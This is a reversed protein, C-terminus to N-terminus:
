DKKLRAHREVLLNRARVVGPVFNGNGNDGAAVVFRHLLFNQLGDIGHVVGIALVDFALVCVDLAADVDVHLRGSGFRLQSEGVLTEFEPHAVRHLQPLCRGDIVFDRM